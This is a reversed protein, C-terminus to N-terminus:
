CGALTYYGAELTGFAINGSDNSFVCLIPDDAHVTELLLRITNGTRTIQPYGPANVIGDCVTESFRAAIPQGALPRAPVVGDLTIQAHACFPLLLMAGLSLKSAFPVKGIKGEFLVATRNKHRRSSFVTAALLCLGIASLPAPSSPTIDASSISSPVVGVTELTDHALFDLNQRDVEVNCEDAIRTGCADGGTNVPIPARERAQDPAPTLSDISAQSANAHNPFLSALLFLTTILAIHSRISQMIQERCFM